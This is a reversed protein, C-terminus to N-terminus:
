SAKRRRALVGMLGLGALLMAYTEPEPVPALLFAHSGTANLATGVIWGKDNIDHAETLVWGAAVMSPDLFSNLDTATTGNWLTAHRSANGVANSNGVIQGFTNIANAVSSNGGLSDLVTATTGSWLMARVLGVQGYDCCITDQSLGVIQGANNIDSAYSYYSLKDLDMATSGNWVVAHSGSYVTRADGVVVGSDNIARANSSPGGLTGLDTATSEKWLTGHYSVAHAPFSVGVMDGADNISNAVGNGFSGTTGVGWGWRSSNGYSNGVIQSSNNIDTAESTMGGWTGLDTATSGSWLTAHGASSGVVQNIENIANAYGNGLDTFTYSAAGAQSTCILLVGATLVGLGSLKVSM